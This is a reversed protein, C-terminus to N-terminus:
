SIITIQYPCKLTYISLSAGILNATKNFLINGSLLKKHLKINFCEPKGATQHPPDSKKTQGPPNDCELAAIGRRQGEDTMHIPIIRNGGKATNDAHDPSKKVCADAAQNEGPKVIGQGVLHFLIAYFFIFLPPGTEFGAKTLRAVSITSFL